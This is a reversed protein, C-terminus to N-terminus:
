LKNDLWKELEAGYLDRAIINGAKDLLYNSPVSRVNYAHSLESDPFASGFTNIYSLEDFKILKLWNDPNQDICIAFIEFGRTKYKKYTKEFGPNLQTSENSNASWFYLLVTKGKLSSLSRKAGNSDPFVLDPLGENAQLMKKQIGILNLYRKEATRADKVFTSVFESQPYKVSLTDAVIKMFQIDKNENLVLEEPNIKQYLAYISSISSLHEVIFSISFGRQDKIVENRRYYYENIQAETIDPTERYAADLVKLKSRTDNLREVLQRVYESEPSGMVSYKKDFDQYDGDIKIKEGPSILLNIIKGTESKLIYIGPQEAFVKFRFSGDGKVNISDILRTNSIDLYELKISNKEANRLKGEV